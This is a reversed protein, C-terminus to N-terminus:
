EKTATTWQKSRFGKLRTWIIIQSASIMMQRCTILKSQFNVKALTAGYNLSKRLSLNSQQRKQSNISNM